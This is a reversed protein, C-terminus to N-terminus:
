HTLAAHLGFQNAAASLQKDHTWLLTGPTLRVTTLLHADIYGIGLGYLKNHNIFGLVEENSAIKACPM